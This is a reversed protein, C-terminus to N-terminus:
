KFLNKLVYEIVIEDSYQISDVYKLTFGSYPSFIFSIVPREVDSIINFKGNQKFVHYSYETDALVFSLQFPRGSKLEDKFHKNKRINDPNIKIAYM